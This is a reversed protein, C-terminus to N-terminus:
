LFEDLSARQWHGRIVQWDTGNRVWDLEFRYLDAQLWDLEEATTVPRGAMAVLLRTTARDTAPLEIQQIRVLLHITQQRLLYGVLLRQVGRQDYGDADAYSAAIFDKLTDIDKAEVATEAQAIRARLRNEPSERDGCAALSTLAVLVPLWVWYLAGNVALVGTRRGGPPHLQDSRVQGAQLRTRLITQRVSM